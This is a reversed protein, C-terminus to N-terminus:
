PREYMTHSAHRARIASREADSLPPVPQGEAVSTERLYDEFGPKSFVFAISLPTAGTNRLAIRVDKPIFITAGEGFSTTRDGLEVVGSGRHVFIIEDAVVHRHAAIAQGPPVDETGMVFDPAGGNKRDVKIIFPATLSGARLGATRRVRREGDAAELVLPTSRTAGDVSGNAAPVPSSTRCSALLLLGLGHRCRLRYSTM